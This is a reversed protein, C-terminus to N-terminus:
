ASGRKLGASGAKTNPGAAGAYLRARTAAITQEIAEASRASLSRLQFFGHILGDYRTLEVDVGAAHLREAYAEGEDRLPDLEATVVIAPPLGALEVAHLPSLLPDTAAVDAAVYQRWFWEVRPASLMYGEANERISPQETTRDIMPYVLLQLCLSPEGREAALLATAAALNGGASDGGVAVRQPDFGLEADRGALWATVAHCALPAAPFPHEPALPYELSAVIADAGACLARAMPDASELDGLVFGGGHMWVLLPPREGPEVAPRYLRVKMPGDATPAEFETVAAVEAPLAPPAFAEIMARMSGDRRAQAVPMREIDPMGVEAVHALLRQTDPDISRTQV